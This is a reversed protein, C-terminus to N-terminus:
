FMRRHVAEKFAAGYAELAARARDEDGGFLGAQLPGWLRGQTAFEHIFDDLPNAHSHAVRWASRGHWHSRVWSPGGASATTRVNTADQVLIGLFVEARDFEASYTLEDPWQDAFIPRLIHHLWEAVPTKYKGVKNERFDALAEALEKEHIEARALAHAAWEASVFPKYPDTAEIIPLPKNEYKSRVSQDAVLTKLNQWNGSSVCALSATMIGIMGPLHRLEVLAQIGGEIRATAATFLRLGNAWPTLSQPAAWRAAVQLSACFPETLGLLDRANGAIQVVQADNTGALPGAVRDSGQLADVVRQVEQSVLDDLEIRRSPELLMEKTLRKLIDARDAEAAQEVAALATAPDSRKDGILRHITTVLRAVHAMHDTGFLDSYNLDSLGRGAGLDWDPVEGADFRVPILWTRGPPMQRFEEAALTLEENMYSKEKARSNASFCALFVLSKDRIAQRIKAKWADGPGLATRDRWYPVQAAELVACLADVKDTDERVYSIFVHKGEADVM